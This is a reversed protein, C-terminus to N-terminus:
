RDLRSGSHRNSGQEDQNRCQAQRCAGRAPLSHLCQVRFRIQGQGGRLQRQARLRHRALRGAIVRAVQQHVVDLCPLCVGSAAIGMVCQDAGDHHLLPDRHIPTIRGIRGHARTHLRRSPSHVHQANGTRFRHIVRRKGTSLGTSLDVPGERIRRGAPAFVGRFERHAHGRFNM